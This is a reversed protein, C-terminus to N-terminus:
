SSRKLRPRSFFGDMGPSQEAQPTAPAPTHFPLTRLDGEGTIWESAGGNGCCHGAGKHIRSAGHPFGRHAARRRGAGALLHLLRSARRPRRPDRRSRAARQQIAALAAIDGERKLHLIDPHRRITGTATCPADVLVAEFTRGPNWATADAEVLEATLKLRELNAKLRGMRRASQEVSTVNAGAAALEATKGGPAACLDAVNKGAVSGLLKM